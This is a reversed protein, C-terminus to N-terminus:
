LCICLYYIGCTILGAISISMIVSIMVTSVLIVSFIPTSLKYFYDFNDMIDIYWGLCFAGILFILVIFLINLILDPIVM